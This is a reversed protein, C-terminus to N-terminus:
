SAIVKWKVFFKSAEWLIPWVRESTCTHLEGRAPDEHRPMGHTPPTELAIVLSPAFWPVVPLAPANWITVQKVWVM